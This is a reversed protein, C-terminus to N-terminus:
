YAVGGSVTAVGGETVDVTFQTGKYSDWATVIFDVVAGKEAPIGITATLTETNASGLWSGGNVGYSDEASDGDADWGWSVQAGGFQYYSKSGDVHNVAVGYGCWDNLSFADGDAPSFTVNATIVNVDGTVTYSYSPTQGDTYACGVPDASAIHTGSSAIMVAAALVAFVKKLTRKMYFGGGIITLLVGHRRSQGPKPVTNITAISKKYIYM